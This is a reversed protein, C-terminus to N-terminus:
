SQRVALFYEHTRQSQKLDDARKYVNFSSALSTYRLNTDYHFSSGALNFQKFFICQKRQIELLLRLLVLSHNKWLLM